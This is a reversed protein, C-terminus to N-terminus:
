GGAVASLIIVGTGVFAVSSIGPGPELPDILAGAFESGRWTAVWQASMSGPYAHATFTFAGDGIGNEGFKTTGGNPDTIVFEGRADSSAMARVFVRQTGAPLAVNTSGADFAVATPPQHVAVRPTVAQPGAIVLGAIFAAALALATISRSM